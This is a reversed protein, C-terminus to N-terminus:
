NKKNKLRKYRKNMRYGYYSVFGLILILGCFFYFFELLGKIELSFFLCLTTGLILYLILHLTWIEDNIFKKNKKGWEEPIINNPKFEGELRAILFINRLFWLNANLSISIALGTLGSILLCILWMPMNNQYLFSIVGIIISYSIFIKWSTEEANRINAWFEKYMSLQFEKKYNKSDNDM